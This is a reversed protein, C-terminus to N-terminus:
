VFNYIFLPYENTKFIRFCGILLYEYTTETINYRTLM